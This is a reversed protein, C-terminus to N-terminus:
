GLIERVVGNKDQNMAYQKMENWVKDGLKKGEASEMREKVGTTWLRDDKWQQGRAEIGQELSTLYIEAGNETSKSIAFLFVKSAANTLANFEKEFGRVLDSQTMGPCTSVVLVKPSSNPDSSDELLSPLFALRRYIFELLLKSRGYETGGGTIGKPWAKESSLEAMPTDSKTHDRISELSTGWATGSSILTLHPRNAVSPQKTRPSALLFPLIQLSLYATSVTNVQIVSEYGDASVDYKTAIFGANLIAQDLHKTQSRLSEVFSQISAPQAMELALATINISPNPNPSLSKLHTEIAAKATAAKKEDRGTIILRSTGRVALKKAAELGIGGTAATVLITQDKFSATGAKHGVIRQRLLTFMGSM